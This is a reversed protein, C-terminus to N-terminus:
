HSEPHGITGPDGRSPIKDCIWAGFDQCQALLQLSEMLREVWRVLDSDVGPRVDARARQVDVADRHTCSGSCRPRVKRVGM